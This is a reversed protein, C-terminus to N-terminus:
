SPMVHFLGKQMQASGLVKSCYKRPRKANSDSGVPVHSRLSSGNALVGHRLVLGVRAVKTSRTPGGCSDM